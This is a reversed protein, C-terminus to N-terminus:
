ALLEALDDAIAQAMAADEGPEARLWLASGTIAGEGQGPKVERAPVEAPRAADLEAVMAPGLWNGALEIPASSAQEMLESATVTRGDEREGAIRTRLLTKLLSSGKAPSLRWRLEASAGDDILCGGRVSATCRPQIQGAAAAVAERWRTLSQEELPALSENAGPLDMLTSAIDREALAHMALVLTRRMRNMEDFLPPVFLIAPDGSGITLLQEARGDFHYSLHRLAGPM